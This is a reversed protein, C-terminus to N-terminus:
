VRAEKKKRQSILLLHLDELTQHVLTGFFQTQSRSAVFGYKRFLMYQRPCKQYQLYDSTYSYNRPIDGSEIKAVPLSGVDFNEIRPLNEDALIRKFAPDMSIGRGKADAIVLLNEARSLAVYFLRMTDFRNIRDLPEGERDLLPRVLKEVKPIGWDKKYVSPLVVVPFELGKSQHITLFPIRGKPFPDDSDEYESEGLRFISFLFTLYFTRIFSEEGIFRGTLISTFEDLYRALYQSILGLNCVPGEDEGREALDFMQKFHGFGTLRYFLDLVNWDLSSASNIIYHLTFPEGKEIRENIVREFYRNALSKKAAISIGITTSLIRKMTLPNYPEDLEWGNKKAQETLRKYDGVVTDIERRRDDVYAKLQKDEKLLAAAAIECNDLWSHFDQYDRSKFDERTPRDFIEIFLGFLPVAEEVELFRGARPAYVKLGANELASKMLKVAQNNRLAPFLFAIQNPDQVKGETLLKQVLPVIEAYANERTTQSSTIVATQKDESHAAIEKDVLRYFGDGGSRQWEEYDMFQTYFDVIKKRSRYNTSLPIKRPERGFHKQCRAPFEVFNEVTAGRFRYLAQDDDGVVCLNQHHEALKFFIKEQIANTDQYEDIIVHKFIKTSEPNNKLAAFAKTQLLSFDTQLISQHRLKGLYADYMKIIPKLVDDAADYIEQPELCEESFRNFLSICNQLAIHKSTSVYEKDAFLRNVDEIEGSMAELLDSMNSRIFFYQGLDDLVIPRLTREQNVAFRRDILIKQCLSHVTGIFMGSLDFTKGDLNTVMGLLSQLGQKLQFAAKETFTSLFIEEPKINHFVILNVTRWLLVRTKGSGPGAPLFLPKETHTIADRQAPNPSFGFEQWLKEITLTM